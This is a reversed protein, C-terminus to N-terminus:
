ISLEPGISLSIFNETNSFCWVLEIRRVLYGPFDIHLPSLLKIQSLTSFNRYVKIYSKGFTGLTERRTQDESM